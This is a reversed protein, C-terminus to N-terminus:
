ELGSALRGSLRYEAGLIPLTPFPDLQSHKEYLILTVLLEEPGREAIGIGIDTASDDLDLKTQRLSEMVAAVSPMRYVIFHANAASVGARHLRYELTGLRPSVYDAYNYKAMDESQERAVASAMAEWTLLPKGQAARDQQMMRLLQEELANPAPLAYNLGPYAVAVPLAMAWSAMALSCAIAPIALPLFRPLKM